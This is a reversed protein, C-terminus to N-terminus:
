ASIFCKKTLRVCLSAPLRVSVFIFSLSRPSLCSVLPPSLSISLSICKKAGCFLFEWVSFLYKLFLVGGVKWEWFVVPSVTTCILPQQLFRAQRLEPKHCCHRSYMKTKKERGGERGCRRFCCVYDILSRLTVSREKSWVSASLESMGRSRSTTWPSNLM